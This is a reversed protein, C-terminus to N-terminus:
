VLLPEAGIVIPGGKPQRENHMQRLEGVFVGDRGIVVAVRLRPNFDFGIVIDLQLEVKVRQLAYSESAKIGHGAAKPPEPYQTLARRPNM